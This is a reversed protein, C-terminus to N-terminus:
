EFTKLLTLMDALSLTPVIAKTLFKKDSTVLFDANARRAAALVFDDEFDRHLEYFCRAEWLNSLDVPVTVAQEM